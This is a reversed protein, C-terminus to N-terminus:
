SPPRLTLRPNGYSLEDLHQPQIPDGSRALTPHNQSVHFAHISDMAYVDKISPRSLYFCILLFLSSWSFLRKSPWGQRGGIQEPYVDVQSPVSYAVLYCTIQYPIRLISSVKQAGVKTQGKVKVEPEHALLSGLRPDGRNGPELFTPLAM